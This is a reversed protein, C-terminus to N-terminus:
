TTCRCTRLTASVAHRSWRERIRVTAGWGPREAWTEQVALKQPRRPGKGNGAGKLISHESWPLRKTREQGKRESRQGKTGQSRTIIAVAMSVQPPQLERRVTLCREQERYPRFLCPPLRGGTLGDGCQRIGHQVFLALRMREANAPSCGRQQQRRKGRVSLRELRCGELDVSGGTFRRTGFVAHTVLRGVSVGAHEEPRRQRVGFRARASRRRHEHLGVFAKLRDEVAITYRKEGSFRSLHTDAEQEPMAPVSITERVGDINRHVRCLLTRTGTNRKDSRDSEKGRQGSPPAESVPSATSTM